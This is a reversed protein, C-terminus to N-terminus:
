LSGKVLLLIKLKLGLLPNQINTKNNIKISKNKIINILLLDEM